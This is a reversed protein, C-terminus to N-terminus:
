VDSGLCGDFFLFVIESGEGYDLLICTCIKVRREKRKERPSMIGSTRHEIFFSYIAMIFEQEPIRCRHGDL